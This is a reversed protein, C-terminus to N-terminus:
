RAPLEAGSEATPPIARDDQGCCEPLVRRRLQTGPFRRTRVSHGRFAREIDAQDAVIKHALRVRVRPALNRVEEIQRRIHSQFHDTASIASGYLARRRLEAPFREGGIPLVHNIIRLYVDDINACRVISM